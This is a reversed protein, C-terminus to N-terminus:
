MEYSRINNPDNLYFIDDDYQQKENISKNVIKNRM